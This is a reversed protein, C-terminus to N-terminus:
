SLEVSYIFDRKLLAINMYHLIYNLIAKPPVKTHYTHVNYLSDSKGESVDAAFPECHYDDTAEDYPTGYEKIFDISKELIDEKSYKIKRAM